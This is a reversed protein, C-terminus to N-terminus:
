SEFNMARHAKVAHEKVQKARSAPALPRRRQNMHAGEVGRGGYFFFYHSM